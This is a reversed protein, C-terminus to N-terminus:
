ETHEVYICSAIEPSIAVDYGKVHIVMAKNDLTHVLRIREGPLIGMDLLRQCGGPCKMSVVKLESGEPFDLLTQPHPRSTNGGRWRKRPRAIYQDLRELAEDSLDHELICAEESATGRDMGLIDSLFCELVRHKKMVQNGILSGVASIEIRDGPLIHLDGQNQLARLHDRIEDEPKSLHWSLAAITPPDPSDRSLICLAELLDERASTKM